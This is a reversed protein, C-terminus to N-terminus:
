SGPRRLMQRLWDVSHWRTSIETVGAAGYPGDYTAHWTEALLASIAPLDRESATRVFVESAL